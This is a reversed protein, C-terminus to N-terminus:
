KSLKKLSVQAAAIYPDNSRNRVFSSDGSERSVPGFLPILKEEENQIISICLWARKHVDLAVIFSRGNVSTTEITRELHM